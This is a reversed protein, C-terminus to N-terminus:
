LIDYLDEENGELYYPLTFYFAAGSNPENKAWIRGSHQTIIQKSIFLGIGSGSHSSANKGRYKRQFIYPLDEEAIGKGSDVIKVVIEGASVGDIEANDDKTELSRESATVFIFVTALEEAYRLANTILNSFVQEIRGKDIVIFIDEPVSSECIPTIGATAIHYECQSLMEEIFEKANVEYFRFEMTQSTFYSAQMFDNVLTNLLETKSYISKLYSHIASPSIVDNLISEAYGRILTVPTRIEHAIDELLERKMNETERLEEEIKKKASIDRLIWELSVTVGDDNTIPTYHIECWIPEADEKIVQFTEMSSHTVPNKLLLGIKEKDSANLYEFFKKTDKKLESITYHFIKTASPSIYEFRQKIYDYLFIHETANEVLMRFRTEQKTLLYYIKKFYVILLFIITVNLILLSSFYNFMSLELRPLLFTFNNSCISWLIILFCLLYKEPINQTWTYIYFICGAWAVLVTSFLVNPILLIEYAEYFWFSIVISCFFLITFFIVVRSMKLHFFKYTGLLFLFATNLSFIQKLLIYSYSMHYVGLYTIDMTFMIFYIIWCLGWIRMFVANEQHSLFLFIVGFILTTVTSSLIMYKLATLLFVKNKGGKQNCGM